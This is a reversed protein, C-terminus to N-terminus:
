DTLTIEKDGYNFCMFGNTDFSYTYGCNILEKAITSKYKGQCYVKEYSIGFCYFDAAGYKEIINKVEKIKENMDKIEISLGNMMIIHEDGNRKFHLYGYTDISYEFGVNVLMNTMSPAYNCRICINRENVYVSYIDTESCLNVLDITRVLQEKITKM